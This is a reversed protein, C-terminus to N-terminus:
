TSPIFSCIAVYFVSVVRDRIFHRISLEKSISGADKIIATM